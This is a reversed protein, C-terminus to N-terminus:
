GESSCFIRWQSTLIGATHVLRWNVIASIAFDLASASRVFLTKVDSMNNDESLKHFDSIRPTRFHVLQLKM